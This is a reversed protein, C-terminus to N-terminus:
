PRMDHGVVVCESKVLMAFAQGVDFVFDPTLYNEVLGRVDYAKIIQDIFSLEYKM